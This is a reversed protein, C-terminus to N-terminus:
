AEVQEFEPMVAIGDTVALAKHACKLGINIDDDPYDPPEAIATAIQQQVENLGDAAHLDNFDNFDPLVCYGATVQAAHEASRRGTDEKASDDDACYVFLAHPYITRLAEGVPLLNGANFAVAVPYGTAMHISAATAYGEAICLVPEQLDVPGILHFCGRVRGKAIFLKSGHPEITQINWLKGQEDRLPVLLNGNDTIKCGFNQVQKALLYGCITANYPKDWMIKAKKVANARAKEVEEQQKKRRFEAQEAWQKRQADTIKSRDDIGLISAVEKLVEYLPLGTAKHILSFGDGAGCGNCYYDGNGTRNDYRFRDDGGCAPCPSQVNFRPMTIAFQPFISDWKGNAAFKIDKLELKKRPM